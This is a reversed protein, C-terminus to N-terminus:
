LEKLRLPVSEGCMRKAIREFALNGKCGSPLNGGTCLNNIEKSEPIIGLLRAGVGDIFDDICVDTKKKRNFRNIVLRVNGKERLAEAAGAAARVSVPDPTTIIIGSKAVSGALKFGNEIGAPADLLIYEYQKGLEEFCPLLKEKTFEINFFVPAPLVSLNESVPIVANVPECNGLVIDGWNYLTKEAVGLLLDLSRVGIDMDALLTRHGQKALARGVGICFSSKGVGGKVSAVVVSM